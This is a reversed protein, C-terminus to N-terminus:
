DAYGCYYIVYSFGNNLTQRVGTRLQVLLHSHFLIGSSDFCTACLTHNSQHDGLFSEAASRGLNILLRPLIESHTTRMALHLFDILAPGIMSKRRETSHIPPIQCSPLTCHPFAANPM